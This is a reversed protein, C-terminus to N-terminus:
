RTESLNGISDFLISLEMIQFQHCKMFFYRNRTGTLVNKIELFITNLTLVSDYVGKMVNFYQETNGVMVASQFHYSVTVYQLLDFILKWRQLYGLFILVLNM